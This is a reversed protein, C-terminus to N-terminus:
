DDGPRESPLGPWESLYVAFLFGYVREGPVPPRGFERALAEIREAFERANAEPVQARYSGISPEFGRARSGALDRLGSRLIRPPGAEHDPESISFVWAVRGYYKETLARVRRTRVVRILGASELAQVHHGVSGKPRGIADALQSITAARQGLLGLIMQRNPHAWAQYQDPSLELSGELEYDPGSQDAM